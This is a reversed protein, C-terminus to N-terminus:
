LFFPADAVAADESAALPKPVRVGAAHMSQLIRFERLVDHASAQLTGTPPRRLIWSRGDAGSVVFTLNSRGGSLLEVEFPGDVGIERGLWDELAAKHFPEGATTESSMRVGRSMM